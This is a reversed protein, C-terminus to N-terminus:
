FTVQLLDGLNVILAGPLPHVDVWQTQHLVQLGGINDQLLITLFDSDWHGTLGMTLEPEPCPPYYHGLIILEKAYETGNLYSANM